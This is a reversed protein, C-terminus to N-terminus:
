ISNNRGESLSGSCVGATGYDVAPMVWEEWLNQLYARAAREERCHEEGASPEPFHLPTAADFAAAEAPPHTWLTDM